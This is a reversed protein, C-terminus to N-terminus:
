RTSNCPKRALISSRQSGDAGRQKAAKHRTEAKARQQDQRYRRRHQRHRPQPTHRSEHNHEPRFCGSLVHNGGGCFGEPRHNRCDDCSRPRIMKSSLTLQASQGRNRKVIRSTSHNVTTTPIPITQSISLIRHAQPVAFAARWLLFAPGSVPIVGPGDSPTESTLEPWL